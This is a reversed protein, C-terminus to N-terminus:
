LAGSVSISKVSCPPRIHPSWATPLNTAPDSGSGHRVANAVAERIGLVLHDREEGRLGGHRLWAAALRDIFDIDEFVAAIRVAVRPGEPPSM